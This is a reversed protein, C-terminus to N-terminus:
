GGEILKQTREKVKSILEKAESDIVIINLTRNDQSIQPQEQKELMKNIESIASVIHGASVPMEIERRAIKSLLEIREKRLAAKKTYGLTCGNTGPKFKHAELNKLSNPHVGRKNRAPKLSESSASIIEEVM